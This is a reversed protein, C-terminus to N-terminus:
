AARDKQLTVPLAPAQGAAVVRFTGSSDANSEQTPSDPQRAEHPDRSKGKRDPRFPWPKGVQKGLQRAAAVRFPATTVPTPNSRSATLQRGCGRGEDRM